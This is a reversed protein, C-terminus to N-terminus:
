MDPFSDNCEQLSLIETSQIHDEDREIMDCILDASVLEEYIVASIRLKSIGYAIPIQKSKGWTLGEMEVARVIRDLDTFHTESDYPKVDLVLIYRARKSGDHAISGNIEQEVINTYQQVTIEMSNNRINLIINEKPIEWTVCLNYSPGKNYDLNLKEIEQQIDHIIKQQLHLLSNEGLEETQAILAHLKNIKKQKQQKQEAFEKELTNIEAFLELKKNNLSQIIDKIDKDIANRAQQFISLSESSIRTAM